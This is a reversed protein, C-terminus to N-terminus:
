LAATMLAHQQESHKCVSAVLLENGARTAMTVATPVTQQFRHHTAVDVATVVGVTVTLMAISMTTMTNV